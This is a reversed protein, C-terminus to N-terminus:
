VIKTFPAVKPMRSSSCTWMSSKGEVTVENSVEVEVNAGLM